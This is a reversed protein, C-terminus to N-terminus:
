QNKIESIIEIVENKSNINLKEYINRIHYKVTNLSIHLDEAIRKNTLGRVILNFVEGERESLNYKEITISIKIIDSESLEEKSKEFNQIFKDIEKRFKRNEGQLIKIRFTIAYTLIIIELISGIKISLLSTTYMNIGWATPLIFLATSFLILSYGFVLFKAFVHKRFIIIGSVWNYTLLFFSITDAITVFLYQKTIFFLFYLLSALVILLYGINKSKPLYYPINLFKYGFLYGFFTVLFHTIVNSHTVLFKPIFLQLLGDYSLVGLTISGLFLCYYLFLKDKLSFFFFFNLLFAVLVFGYYFGNEFFMFKMSLQKYDYHKIQLPFYVENKFDVKLFFPRNTDYRDILLSYHTNNLEKYDVKEGNQFMEIKYIATEPINFVIPKKVEPNNLVIKFWYVGNKYGLNPSLLPNMEKTVVSVPTEKQKLDKSYFVSFDVTDSNKNINCSTFVLLFLPIFIFIPKM